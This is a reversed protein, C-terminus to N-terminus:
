LNKILDDLENELASTAASFDTNADTGNSASFDAGLIDEETYTKTNQYKLLIDMLQACNYDGYAKKIRFIDIIWLIGFGGNTVLKIIGWVYDKILFRDVGLVGLFISLLLGTSPSNYKIGNFYRKAAPAACLLASEIQEETYKTNPFLYKKNQDLYQAAELTTM